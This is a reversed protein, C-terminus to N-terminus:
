TSGIRSFAIFVKDLTTSRLEASGAVGAGLGFGLGLFAAAAV